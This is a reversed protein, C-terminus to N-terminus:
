RGPDLELQGYGQSSYHEDWGQVTDTAVTHLAKKIADLDVAYYNYTFKECGLAAMADQLLSDIEALTQASQLTNIHRNIHNNM